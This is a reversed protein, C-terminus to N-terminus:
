VNNLNRIDYEKKDRKFNDVAKQNILNFSILNDLLKHEYKSTKIVTNGSRSESEFLYLRPGKGWERDRRCTKLRFKLCKFIYIDVMYMSNRGDEIYMYSGSDEVHFLRNIMESHLVVVRYLLPSLSSLRYKMSVLEKRAKDKNKSRSVFRKLELSNKSALHFIIYKNKNFFM